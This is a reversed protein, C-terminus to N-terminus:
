RGIRALIDEREAILADRHERVRWASPHRELEEDLRAIERNLEHEREWLGHHHYHYEYPREIIVDREPYPFPFPTVVVGHGHHHWREAAAPQAVIMTVAFLYLLSTMSRRGKIFYKM